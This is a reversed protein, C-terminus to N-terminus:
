CSVTVVSWPRRDGRVARDDAGPVARDLPEGDLDPGYCVAPTPEHEAAPVLGVHESNHPPVLGSVVLRPHFGESCKRSAGTGTATAPSLSGGTAHSVASISMPRPTPRRPEVHQPGRGRLSSVLQLPRIGT